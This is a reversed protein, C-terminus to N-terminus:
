FPISVGIILLTVAIAYIADTFFAVRDFELGGGERKFRV